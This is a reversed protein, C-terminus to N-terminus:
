INKNLLSRNKDLCATRYSRFKSMDSSSKDFCTAIDSIKKDWCIDGDSRNKDLESRYNDLCTERGSKYNDMNSCTNTDSRYKDWDKELKDIFTNWDFNSNTKVCNDESCYDSSPSIWDEQDETIFVDCTDQSNCISNCPIGRGCTLERSM